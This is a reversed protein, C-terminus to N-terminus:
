ISVFQSHHQTLAAASGERRGVSIGRAYGAWSWAWEWSNAAARVTASQRM